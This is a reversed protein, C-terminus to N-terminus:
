KGASTEKEKKEKAASDKLNSPRYAVKIARFTPHLHLKIIKTRFKSACNGM